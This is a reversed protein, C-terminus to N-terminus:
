DETWNSSSESRFANGASCLTGTDLNIPVPANVLEHLDDWFCQEHDDTWFLYATSGDLHEIAFVGCGLADDTATAVKTGSRSFTLVYRYYALYRPENPCSMLKGTVDTGTILRRYIANAEQSFQQDFIVTMTTGSPQTDVRTVVIHVHDPSNEFAPLAIFRIGLLILIVVAVVVALVRITVQRKVMASVELDNKAGGVRLTLSIDLQGDLM